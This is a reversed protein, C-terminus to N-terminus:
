GTDGEIKIDFDHTHPVRCFFFQFMPMTMFAIAMAVLRINFFTALPTRSVKDDERVRHVSQAGFNRRGQQVLM